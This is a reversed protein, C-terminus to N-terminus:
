LPLCLSGPKDEKKKTAPTEIEISYLPGEAIEIKRDSHYKKEM